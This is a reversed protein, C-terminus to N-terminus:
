MEPIVSIAAGTNSVRLLIVWESVAAPSASVISWARRLAMAFSRRWSASCSVLSDVLQAGLARHSSTRDGVLGDNRPAVAVFCDMRTTVRYIAESRECHRNLTIEDRELYVDKAEGRGIAAWSLLSVACYRFRM